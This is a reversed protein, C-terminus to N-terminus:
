GESGTLNVAVTMQPIMTANSPESGQNRSSTEPAMHHVPHAVEDQRPGSLAHYDGVAYGPKLSLPYESHTVDVEVTVHSTM